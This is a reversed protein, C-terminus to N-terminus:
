NKDNINLLLKKIINKLFFLNNIKFFFIRLSIQSGIM